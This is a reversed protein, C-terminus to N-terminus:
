LCASPCISSMIIGIDSSADSQGGDSSRRVTLM